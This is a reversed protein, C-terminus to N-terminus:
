HALDAYGVQTLAKLPGQGLFALRALGVGPPPQNRQDEQRDTQVQEEGDMQNSTVRRECPTSRRCRFIKRTATANTRITEEHGLLWEAEATLDRLDGEGDDPDERERDRDCEEPGSLSGDPQLV